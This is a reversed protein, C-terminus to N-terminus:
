LNQMRNTYKVKYNHVHRMSNLINKQLLYKVLVTICLLKYLLIFNVLM